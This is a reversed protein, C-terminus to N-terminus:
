ESIFKEQTRWVAVVDESYGREESRGIWIGHKKKRGHMLYDRSCEMTWSSRLLLLLLLLLLLATVVWESVFLSIGPPSEKAM